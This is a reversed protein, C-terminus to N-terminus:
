SCSHYGCKRECSRTQQLAGRLARVEITVIMCETERIKSSSDQKSGAAEQGGTTALLLRLPPGRRALARRSPLQQQLSDGVAGARKRAACLFSSLSHATRWAHLQLTAKRESHSQKARQQARTFLTSRAVLIFSSSVHALTRLSMTREVIDPDPTATAWSVTLLTITSNM